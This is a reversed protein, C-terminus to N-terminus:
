PPTVPRGGARLTLQERAGGSLGDRVGVSECAGLGARARRCARVRTSAAHAREAPPSVLRARASSSAARARTIEYDRSPIRASRRWETIPSPRKTGTVRDSLLLLPCAHTTSPVAQMSACPACGVPTVHQLRSARTTTVHRTPDSGASHAPDLRLFPIFCYGPGPRFYSRSPHLCWM